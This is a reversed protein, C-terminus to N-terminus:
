AIAPEIAASGIVGAHLSERCDAIPRSYRARQEFFNVDSYGAAQLLDYAAPFGDAVRRPSHADAGVTVPIGRQRMARLIAPGPNMEPVAKYLGSTNLEMAVGTRAIRDLYGTLHGMMAAPNWHDGIYNKVLDPHALSDFLGTEAAQALHEFYCHQFAVADGMWYAERYEALHPHVSGLIFDFDAKWLLQEIWGEYGPFYDCELGLRIDLRGAYRARADAVMDLYADFQEPAMRVQASHGDPMPCHCTVTIGALGCRIAQDAYDTIQGTAHKCLPTHMHMEYVLRAPDEPTHAAQLLGPTKPVERPAPPAPHDPTM